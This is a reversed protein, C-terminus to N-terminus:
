FWHAPCEPPKCTSLGIIQNFTRIKEKESVFGKLVLQRRDVLEAPGQPLAGDGATPCGRDGATASSGSLRCQRKLIYRM